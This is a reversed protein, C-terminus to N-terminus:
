HTSSKPQTATKEASEACGPKSESNCNATVKAAFEGIKQVVQEPTLIVSPKTKLVGNPGIPPGNATRTDIEVYTEGLVGATQLEAIADNPVNLEYSANLMMEVEVPFEKLEPRARVRTVSGIEVGALRVPAHEKLGMANNFYAKLVQRHSPKRILFFLILVLPLCAVAAIRVVKWGMPKDRQEFRRAM